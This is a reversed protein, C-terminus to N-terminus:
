GTLYPHKAQTDCCFCGNKKVIDICRYLVIDIGLRKEYVTCSAKDHARGFPNERM